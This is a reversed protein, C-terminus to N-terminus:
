PKTAPLLPLPLTLVRQTSGSSPSSSAVVLPMPTTLKGPQTLTTTVEKPITFQCMLAEGDATSRYSGTYVNSSDPATSATTGSTLRWQTACMEKPLAVTIILNGNVTEYLAEQGVGTLLLNLQAEIDRRYFNIPQNIYTAKGLSAETPLTIYSNFNNIEIENNVNASTSTDNNVVTSFSFSGGASSKSKKESGNAIHLVMVRSEARYAQSDGYSKIARAVEYLYALAVRSDVNATELSLYLPTYYYRHSVLFYAGSSLEAKLEADLEGVAFAADATVRESFMSACDGAYSLNSAAPANMAESLKADFLMGKDPDIGIRVVNTVNAPTLEAETINDPFVSFYGLAESVTMDKMPAVTMDNNGQRFAKVDKPLWPTDGVGVEDTTTASNDTNSQRNTRRKWLQWSKIKTKARMVTNCQKQEAFFGEIVDAPTVDEEKEGLSKLGGSGDVLTKIASDRIEEPTEGALLRAMIMQGEDTIKVVEGVEEAEDIPEDQTRGVGPLLLALLASLPLLPKISRMTDETQEHTAKAANVLLSLGSPSRHVVDFARIRIPRLM